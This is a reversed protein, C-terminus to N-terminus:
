NQSPSAPALIKILQTVAGEIRSFFMFSPSQTVGIIRLAEPNDKLAAEAERCSWGMRQRLIHLSVRQIRNLYISGTHPLRLPIRRDEFNAKVQQYIGELVEEISDGAGIQRELGGKKTRDSEIRIAKARVIDKFRTFAVNHAFTGPSSKTPDFKAKACEGWLNQVIIEEDIDHHRALIGPNLRLQKKVAVRIMVLVDPHECWHPIAAREMTAVM